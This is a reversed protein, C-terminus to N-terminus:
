PQRRRAELRDIWRAVLRGLPGSDELKRQQAAREAAREEDTTRDRLPVNARAALWRGVSRPEHADHIARTVRRRSRDRFGSTATAGTGSALADLQYWQDGDGDTSVTLELAVAEFVDRARVGFRRRLTLRGYGVRWEKRGRTLWVGGWCLAGAAMITLAALPLLSSNSLTERATLLALSSAAIAVVTAFIAQKRRIAPDPVLAIHGEADITESWGEPLASLADNAREVVLGLEATLARAAEERVATPGLTSLEITGKVTEAVLTKTGPLLRICHIEDRRLETTSRFPGL